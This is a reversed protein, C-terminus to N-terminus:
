GRRGGEASWSESRDTARTYGPRNVNGGGRFQFHTPDLARRDAQRNLQEHVEGALLRAMAKAPFWLGPPILPYRGAYEPRLCAQRVSTQETVGAAWWSPSGRWHQTDMARTQRSPPRVSGGRFEFHRPDLMRGRLPEGSPWTWGLRAAGVLENMERAPLWRGPAVGQYLSAFEPRLRAQRPESM